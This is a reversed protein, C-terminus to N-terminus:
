LLDVFIYVIGSARDKGIYTLMSYTAGVVVLSGSPGLLRNFTILYLIENL